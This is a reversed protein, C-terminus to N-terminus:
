GEPTVAGLLRDIAIKPVLLRNGIRITPIQGATAAKYSSNRSLGLIHGAEEVTYTQRPPDSPEIVGQSM